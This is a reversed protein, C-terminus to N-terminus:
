VERGLVNLKGDILCGCHKLTVSDPKECRYFEGDVQFYIEHQKPLFKFEVPGVSQHLRHFSRTAFGLLSPVVM